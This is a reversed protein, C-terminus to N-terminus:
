PGSRHCVRIHLNATPHDLQHWIVRLHSAGVFPTAVADELERDLQLQPNTVVPSGDNAVVISMAETVAVGDMGVSGFILCRDVVASRVFSVNVRAM